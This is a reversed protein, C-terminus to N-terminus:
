KHVGEKPVVSLELNIVRILEDITERREDVLLPARILLDLNAKSQELWDKVALEANEIEKKASKGIKTEDTTWLIRQQLLKKLTAM